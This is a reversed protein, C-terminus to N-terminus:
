IFLPPPTAEGATGAASMACYLVACAKLSAAAAAAAAVVVNLAGVIVTGGGGGILCFGGENGINGGGSVVKSEVGTVNDVGIVTGVVVVSVEPM